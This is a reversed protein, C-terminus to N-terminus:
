EMDKSGGLVNKYLTGEIRKGDERRRWWIDNDALQPIIFSGNREVLYLSNFYEIWEENSTPEM